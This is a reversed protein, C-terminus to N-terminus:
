GSKIAEVAPFLIMLATQGNLDRGDLPDKREIHLRVAAAVGHLAALKLAPNLPAASCASAHLSEGDQREADESDRHM